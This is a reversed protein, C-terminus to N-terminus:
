RNTKSSSSHGTPRSDALEIRQMLSPVMRESAGAVMCLLLFAADGRGNVIGLALNAKAALGIIAAGLAGGIM